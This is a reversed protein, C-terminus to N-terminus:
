SEIKKLYEVAIVKSIESYNGYVDNIKNNLYFKEIEFSVEEFTDLGEILFLIESSDNLYDNEDKEVNWLKNRIIKFLIENKYNFDKINKMIVGNKTYYLKIYKKLNDFIM